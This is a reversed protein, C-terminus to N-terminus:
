DKEADSFEYYKRAIIEAHREDLEDLTVVRMGIDLLISDTSLSEKPTADTDPKKESGEDTNM